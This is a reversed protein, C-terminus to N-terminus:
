LGMVGSLKSIIFDRWGFSWYHYAGRIHGEHSLQEETCSISAIYEMEKNFLIFDLIAVEDPNAFLHNTKPNKNHICGVLWEHRCKPCKFSRHYSDWENVIFLPKCGKTQCKPCQRMM